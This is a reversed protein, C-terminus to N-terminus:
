GRRERECESILGGMYQAALPANPDAFDLGVTKGDVVPLPHCLEFGLYGPYGIATLRTGGFPM